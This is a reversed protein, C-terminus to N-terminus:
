QARLVLTTGHPAKRKQVPPNAMRRTQISGKQVAGRVMNVCQCCRAMMSDDRHNDKRIFFTGM